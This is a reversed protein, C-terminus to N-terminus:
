LHWHCCVNSKAATRGAHLMVEPPQVAQRKSAPQDSAGNTDAAANM